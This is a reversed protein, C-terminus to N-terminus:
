NMDSVEDESGDYDGSSQAKKHSRKPKGAEPARADIEKSCDACSLGAKTRILEVDTLGCSECATPLFHARIKVDTVESEMDFLYVPDGHRVSDIEELTKAIAAKISKIAGNFEDNAMKKHGNIRDLERELEEINSLRAIVNPNTETKKAPRIM